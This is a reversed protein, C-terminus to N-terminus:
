TSYVYKNMSIQNFPPSIPDPTEESEVAEMNTVGDVFVSLAMSLLAM